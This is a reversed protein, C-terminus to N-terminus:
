IMNSFMVNDNIEIAPLLLAFSTACFSKDCVGRYINGICRM